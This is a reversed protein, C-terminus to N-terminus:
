LLVIRLEAQGDFTVDDAPPAGVADTAIRAGGELYPLLDVGDVVDLDLEVLGDPITPMEAVLVRPLTSGEATSEVYVQLSELFDFNDLDGTGVATDTIRFVLQRLSVEKAVGGDRAGVEEEVNLSIAVPEDLFSALMAAIPDGEIRQEEIDETVDFHVLGCGTLFACTFLLLHKMALMSGLKDEPTLGKSPKVGEM